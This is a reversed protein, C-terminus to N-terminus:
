FRERRSVAELANATPRTATTREFFIVGDYHRRISVETYVQSPDQYGWDAQHVVQPTSLWREVVPNDAPTRLDLMLDGLNARSLYWAFSGEPASPVISEKLDGSAQGPYLVRTQFSAQNFDFGFAYYRDWYKKRLYYGLYPNILSDGVVQSEKGKGSIHENHEWVFFKADPREHDILYMLNEAKYQSRVSNKQAINMLAFQKMARVHQLVQDFEDLSSRRVYGEKNKILQDILDDLRPLAEELMRRGTDDMQMPWKVEEKALVQFLSDTASVRAPSHKDLYQLVEERGRENYVPDLGYFRVKEEDPM